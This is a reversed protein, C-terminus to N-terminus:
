MCFVCLVSQRSEGPVGAATSQLSSRAPHNVPKWYERLRIHEHELCRQLGRKPQQGNAPFMSNPQQEQEQQQQLSSLIVHHHFVFHYQIVLALLIGM